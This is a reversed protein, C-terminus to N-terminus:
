RWATNSSDSTNGTGPTPVCHVLLDSRCLKAVENVVEVAHLYHYILIIFKKSITPPTVLLESGRLVRLVSLSPCGFHLRVLSSKYLALLSYLHPDTEINIFM